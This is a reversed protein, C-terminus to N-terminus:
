GLLAAATPISCGLSPWPWHLLQQDAPAYAHMAGTYNVRWHMTVGYPLKYDGLSAAAGAAMIALARGLM